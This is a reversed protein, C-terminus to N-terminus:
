FPPRAMLNALADKSPMEHPRLTWELDPPIQNRLSDARVLAEPGKGVFGLIAAIRLSRHQEYTPDIALQFLEQRAWGDGDAALYGLGDVARTRLMREQTLQQESYGEPLDLNSPMPKLAIERLARAALPSRLDALIGVAHLQDLQDTLRFVADALLPVVSFAQARLNEISARYAAEVDRRDGLQDGKKWEAELLRGAPTNPFMTAAPLEQRTEPPPSPSVVASRAMITPAPAPAVAKSLEAGTGAAPLPAPASATARYFAWLSGCAVLGVGILIKRSREM